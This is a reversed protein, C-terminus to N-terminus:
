PRNRGGGLTTVTGEITLSAYQEGGTFDGSEYLGDVATGSSSGGLYINCTSGQELEPSSFAISQIQKAPSFTLIDEGAQNQIHILTGAQQTSTLNILVSNQSSSGSPAQAMGSSGVAILTGGSITFSGMYDLAGNMQETPGNVIVVGGTMEIAGNSDIGDGGADVIISGGNVYLYYDGEYTFAEPGHGPQQQGGPGMGHGMGSADNGGAVNIGDDSSTIHTIGKNISIVSSELGEYSKIIQIIGDNITLTSDAHMGDDGSLIYFSGANITINGNSHIADDASDITFIGGDINVNVVGKIGKASMTEDVWKSSGGGSTLTFEGDSVTVDTQATIADGGSTISIVGGTISVFGKAADEENDSKLGDGQTDITIVGDKIAVYDKGRIGDDLATVTITGSTIILGDKSAIGDAYNGTVTLSGEGFITLDSKSFIAANPEDEEASPFVYSDSDTVLNETQGALVIVASKAQSIFVPASTSSHLDVGNFILRVPEEDDTKVIVQGDTLTGSLSYTGAKTITVSGGSVVVGEADASVSDGNLTIPIVDANDWSYNNEDDEVESNEALTENVTNTVPTTPTEETTIEEVDQAEVMDAAPEVSGTSCAALSFATLVSICIIILRKM